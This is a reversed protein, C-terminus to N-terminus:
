VQRCQHLLLDRIWAPPRKSLCELASHPGVGHISITRVLSVRGDVGGFVSVAQLHARASQQVRSTM